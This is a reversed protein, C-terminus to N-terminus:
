DIVGYFLPIPEVEADSFKHTDLLIERSYKVMEEQNAHITALLDGKKVYDGVNRHIMLGVAHDVPDTKKTRGAGLEVSLEGVKRANIEKIYGEEPALVEEIFNAKLFKEPNDIYSVDGEQAIVLKRFMELGSGDQIAQAVMKEASKPSDAKGGLHLM